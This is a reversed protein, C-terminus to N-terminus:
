ILLQLCLQTHKTQEFGKKATKRFLNTLFTVLVNHPVLYQVTNSSETKLM